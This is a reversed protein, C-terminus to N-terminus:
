LHQESSAEHEAALMNENGEDFSSGLLLRLAEVNHERRAWSIPTNGSSDPASPDGGAGMLVQVVQASGALHLPTEGGNGRAAPDAGHELLLLAMKDLGHAAAQHLPTWNHENREHVLEPRRSLRQQVSARDDESVLVHFETLSM